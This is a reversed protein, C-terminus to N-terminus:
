RFVETFETSRFQSGFLFRITETRYKRNPKRYKETRNRNETNQAWGSDLGVVNVGNNIAQQLMYFNGSCCRSTVLAVDRSGDGGRADAHDRRGGGLWVSAASSPLRRGSVMERGHMLTAV